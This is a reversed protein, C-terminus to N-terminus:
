QKWRNSSKTIVPRKLYIPEVHNTPEPLGYTLIAEGLTQLEHGEVRKWGKELCISHLEDSQSENLEAVVSYKNHPLEALLASIPGVKVEGDHKLGVDLGGAFLLPLADNHATKQVLLDFTDISYLKAGLGEALANAFSIGTRVATFSGPGNVVLIETIESKDLGLKELMDKLLPVLRDVDDRETPWREEALIKGDNLLALEHVHQATNIALIM